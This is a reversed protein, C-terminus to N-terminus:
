RAIDWAHHVLDHVFYRGLSAVTFVAGDSRRGRRQQADDPVAAFRAAIEDAASRLQAAVAAPQQEWYREDIATRDQDWNAFQPDDEDLMRGLRVTFTRCVDRIHCAYELSSWVDPTRRQAASPDQLRAEFAIVVGDVLAPLDTLTVDATDFGCEACPRDLVWTWDKVDPEPIAPATM